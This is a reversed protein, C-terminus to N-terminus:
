TRRPGSGRATGRCGRSWSGGLGASRAMAKFIRPVQSADLRAGVGGARHVSRFLPGETLGSRELWRGVLALTDGALYVVDGRGEGDTKARRVLLTADGPIEEVLDTVQLSVLEARRLLADYAVALLARNRDDILRGGAADLLRRRLAWTIGQAQEQRRGKQRYMRKLALRVEPSALTAECGLARHAVTLSAVYRRVTAPSRTATMADIFAAVTEAKAPLVERHEDACWRAYIALDSRVARETNPSFGGRAARAFRGLQHAVADPDVPPRPPTEPPPQLPPQPPM